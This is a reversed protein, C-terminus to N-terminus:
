SMRQTRNRQASVITIIVGVGCAALVRGATCGSIALVSVITASHLGTKPDTLM